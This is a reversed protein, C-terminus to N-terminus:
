EDAYGIPLIAVPRLAQERIGCIEKVKSDDFAGVWCNALGLAFCALMAFCCAITADQLAYLQEGRIGYHSASKQTDAFFVLVVPAQAVFQQSFAADALEKRKREDEIVVVKYAKLNGASPASDIAELIRELKEKEVKKALYARVSHRRRLVEFFDM